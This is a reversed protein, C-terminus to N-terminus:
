SEEVVYKEGMNKNDMALDSNRKDVELQCLHKDEWTGLHTLTMWGDFADFFGIQYLKPM